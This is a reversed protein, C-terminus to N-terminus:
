GVVKSSGPEAHDFAAAGHDLLSLADREEQDHMLLVVREVGLREARAFAARLTSERAPRQIVTLHLTESERGARSWADRLATLQDDFEDSELATNGM